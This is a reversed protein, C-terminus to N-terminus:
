KISSFLVVKTCTAELIFLIRFNSTIVKFQDTQRRRDTYFIDCMKSCLILKWCKEAYTNTLSQDLTSLDIDVPGHTVPSLNM